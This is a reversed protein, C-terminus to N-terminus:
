IHILSLGLLILPLSTQSTLWGGVWNAIEVYDSMNLNYTTMATAADMGIFNAVGFSTGNENTALLGLPTDTGDGGFLLNMAVMNDLDVGLYNRIRTSADVATGSQDMFWDDDGGGFVNAFMGAIGWCVAIDNAITANIDPLTENAM